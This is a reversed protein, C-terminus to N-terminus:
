VARILAIIMMVLGAWSVVWIASRVAFIGALYAPVYLIRSILFIWAGQMALGDNVGRVVLLLGIAVFVPLAEHVNFLAREARAGVKSLPPEADRSGLAIKLRIGTGPGALLYRCIAPLLTQIVFLALFALIVTIVFAEKANFHPFPNWYLEPELEPRTFKCDVRM